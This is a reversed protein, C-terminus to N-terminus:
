QDTTLIIVTNETQGSAEIAAFVRGLNDDCESILGYYSARSERDQV